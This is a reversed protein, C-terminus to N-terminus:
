KLRNANPWAGAHMLVEIEQAVIEYVRTIALADTNKINRVLFMKWKMLPSAFPIAVLSGSEVAYSWTTSMSFISLGIGRQVVGRLTNTGDTEFVTRLRIGHGTTLRDVLVRVPNPRKALVLPLTGLQELECREPLSGKFHRQVAHTACFLFLPEELIPQVAFGTGVDESYTIALDAEGRMLWGHVNSATGELVQLTVQPLEALCREILAPGLLGATRAPLAIRVEGAPTLVVSSLNRTLDSLEDVLRQARALFAHGADTLVIGRAHRDFLAAGIAAELRQVRKSLSSQAICLHSAAHAFSGHKAVLVFAQLDEFVM